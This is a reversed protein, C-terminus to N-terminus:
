KYVTCTPLQVAASQKSEIGVETPQGLGPSSSGAEGTLILDFPSDESSARLSNRLHNM